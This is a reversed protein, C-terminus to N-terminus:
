FPIEAENRLARYEETARAAKRLTKLKPDELADSV